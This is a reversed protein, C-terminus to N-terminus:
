GPDSLSGVEQPLVSSCDLEGARPVLLQVKPPKMTVKPEYYCLIPASVWRTFADSELGFADDTGEYIVSLPHSIILKFRKEQLDQYFDAFFSANSAMAMEMLYKKEYEAVLPVDQIYGFTLLQRQDMFLVDGEAAAIDVETIIKTLKRQALTSSPTRTITTERLINWTPILVALVILLQIGKPWASWRLLNETRISHFAIATLLAVTIIFVDLNHLDSGGGIKVSAVLGGVAFVFSFASVGLIQWGDLIWRKSQIAWIM